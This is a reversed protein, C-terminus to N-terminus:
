TCKWVRADDKIRRSVISVYLAYIGVVYFTDLPPDFAIFMTAMFIYGFKNLVYLFFLYRIWGFVVSYIVASFIVLSQELVNGPLPLLALGLILPIACWVGVEGVMYLDSFNGVAYPFREAFFVFFLASILTVLCIFAAFLTVSKPIIKLRPLGAMLSLMVLATIISFFRSPYAGSMAVYHIDGFLPHSKAAVTLAADPLSSFIISASRSILWSIDSSFLVVACLVPLTLVIYRLPYAHQVLASLSRYSRHCYSILKNEM